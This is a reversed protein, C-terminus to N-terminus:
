FLTGPPIQRYDGTVFRWEGDSEKELQGDVEYSDIRGQSPIDKPNDTPSDTFIFKGEFTATTPSTVHVDRSHMFARVWRGSILQGALLQKLDQKSAMQASSAGHFKESINETIAAVDKRRVADMMQIVKHEILEQDSVPPRPWLVVIAIAAVILVLLAILQSRKVAAILLM